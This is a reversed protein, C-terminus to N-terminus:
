NQSNNLFFPWEFLVHFKTKKQGGRQCDSMKNEFIGEKVYICATYHSIFEFSVEKFSIIARLSTNKLELVM